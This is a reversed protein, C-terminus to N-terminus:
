LSESTVNSSDKIKSSDAYNKLEAQWNQAMGPPEPEDQPLDQAKCSGAPQLGDLVYKVESESVKEM